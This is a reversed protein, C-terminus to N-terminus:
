LMDVGLSQSFVHLNQGVVGDSPLHPLLGHGIQTFGAHFCEHSRRIDIRHRIERPPQIDDLVEVSDTAISLLEADQQREPRRDLRRLTKTGRLGLAHEGTRPLEGLAAVFRCRGELRQPPLPHDCRPQAADFSGAPDSALQDTDGLPRVISRELQFCVVRHPCRREPEALQGGYPVMGLSTHQEVLRVLVSRECKEVTTV